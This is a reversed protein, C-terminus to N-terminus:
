KQSSDPSRNREFKGTEVTGSRIGESTSLIVASVSTYKHVLNRVFYHSLQPYVKIARKYTLVQHNTSIHYELCAELWEAKANLHNEEFFNVVAREINRPGNM